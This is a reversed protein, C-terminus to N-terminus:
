NCGRLSSHTSSRPLHRVTCATGAGLDPASVIWPLGILLAALSFSFGMVVSVFSGM